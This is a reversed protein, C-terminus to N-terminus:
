KVVQCSGYNYVPEGEVRFTYISFMKSKDLFITTGNDFTVEISDKDEDLVFFYGVIKNNSIAKGKNTLTLPHLKIHIDTGATIYSCELTVDKSGAYGKLSTILFIATFLVLIKKM